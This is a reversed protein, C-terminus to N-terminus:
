DKKEKKKKKRAEAMGEDTRLDVRAAMVRPRVKVEIGAFVYDGQPLYGEYTGTESVSTEAYTVAKAMLPDFPMQVAELEVKGLDGQLSVQGYNSDIDWLWDLVEREERLKNAELLRDRASTVDGLARAAHAGAVWDEFKLPQGTELCAKFTREVGAWANKQVLRELDQSLRVYEAQAAEDAKDGALAPASVLLSAALFLKALM